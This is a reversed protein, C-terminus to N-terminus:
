GRRASMTAPLLRVSRSHKRFIWRRVAMQRTCLPFPHRKLPIKTLSRRKRSLLNSFAWNQKRRLMRKRYPKRFPSFIKRRAPSPYTRQKKGSQLRAAKPYFATPAIDAISNRTRGVFLATIYLFGRHIVTALVRQNRIAAGSPCAIDSFASLSVCTGAIRTIYLGPRYIGSFSNCVGAALIIVVRENLVVHATGAAFFSRPIQSTIHRHCWYGCSCRDFIWNIRMQIVCVRVM